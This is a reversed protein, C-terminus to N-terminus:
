SACTQVLICATYNRSLSGVLRKPAPTIAKYSTKFYLTLAKHVLPYSLTIILMSLYVNRIMTVDFM